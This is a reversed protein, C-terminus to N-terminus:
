MYKEVLNTSTRINVILGPFNQNDTKHNIIEGTHTSMKVMAPKLLILNSYRHYFLPNTSLPFTMRNSSWFQLSLPNLTLQRMTPSMTTWIKTFYALLRDFERYTVNAHNSFNFLRHSSAMPSCSFAPLIHFLLYPFIKIQMTVTRSVVTLYVGVGLALLADNVFLQLPNTPPIFFQWGSM